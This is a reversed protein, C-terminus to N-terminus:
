RLVRGSIVSGAAWCLAPFAVALVLAFALVLTLTM